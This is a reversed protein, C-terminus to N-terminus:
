FRKTLLPTFASIAAVFIAGYLPPFLPLLQTFQTCLTGDFPVYHLIHIEKLVRMVINHIHIVAASCVCVCSTCPIPTSLSFLLSRKNNTCVSDALAPRSCLLPLLLLVLLANSAIKYVSYTPRVVARMLILSNNQQQQVARSKAEM